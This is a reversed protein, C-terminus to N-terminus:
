GMTSIGIASGGGILIETVILLIKKKNLIKYKKKYKESDAKLNKLINDYDHKETQYKLNKIEDYSTKIKLLEPENSINPYTSM